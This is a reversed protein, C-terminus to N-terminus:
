RPALRLTAFHVEVLLRDDAYDRVTVDPRTGSSVELTRRLIGRVAM